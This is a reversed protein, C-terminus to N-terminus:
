KTVGSAIFTYFQQSERPILYGKGQMIKSPLVEEDSDRVRM